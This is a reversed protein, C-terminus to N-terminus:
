KVNISYVENTGHIISSLFIPYALSWSYNGAGVQKGDRSYWERLGIVPEDSLAQSTRNYIQQIEDADGNKALAMTLYYSVIYWYGGNQYFETPVETVDSSYNGYLVRAAGKENVLYDFNTRIFGMISRTEREDSLGAAVALSNSDVEFYDYKGKQNVWAAYHGFAKGSYSKPTSHVWFVKKFEKKLNQSYQRYSESEDDHGLVSEMEIMNQNVKYWYANVFASKGSRQIKDAWDAGAYESYDSSLLYNDARGKLYGIGKSAYDIHSALWEKDGTKKYYMYIADLFQMQHDLQEIGGDNKTRNYPCLRYVNLTDSEAFWIPVYGRDDMHSGFWDITHAVTARMAESAQVAGIFTVFTDRAYYQGKYGGNLSAVSVWQFNPDSKSQFFNQTLLKESEQILGSSDESLLSDVIKEQKQHNEAERKKDRDRLFYFFTGIALAVILIPIIYFKAKWNRM